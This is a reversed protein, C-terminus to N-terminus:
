KGWGVKGRAVVDRLFAEYDKCISEWTYHGLFYGFSESAAQELKGRDNLLRVCETAFKEPDDSVIVGHGDAYATGEVGKSTSVVAKRHAAAELLKVKVGGGSKLPVVVLSSREYYSLVSDVTGTVEVAEGALRRVADVPSKGVITLTALPDLERIRPLVKQVFWTVGEVNPAYSMNGIFLMEHRESECGCPSAEGGVPVLRTKETPIGLWSAYMEMDESSVFTYADIPLTQYIWREFSKLRFSDFYYAVRKAPDTSSRAIQRYVGWEVNHMNIVTPINCLAPVRELVTAMHPFDINVLDIHVRTLLEAVGGVLEDLDRSAVTYPLHLLEFWQRPSRLGRSVPHIEKCYAGLERCARGGEDGDCPFFLYISNSQSLCRIRHFIGARGGTNVPVLSEICVWLINM